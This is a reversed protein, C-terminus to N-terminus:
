ELTDINGLPGYLKGEISRKRRKKGLSQDKRFARVEIYFRGTRRPNNTKLRGVFNFCVENFNDSVRTYSRDKRQKGCFTKVRSNPLITQNVDDFVNTCSGEYFAIHDHQTPQCTERREQYLEAKLIKYVIVHDPLTEFTMRCNHESHSYFSGYGPSKIVMREGPSIFQSTDGCSGYREVKSLKATFSGEYKQRDHPNGGSDVTRFSDTILQVTLLGYAHVVIPAKKVNAVAPCSVSFENQFDEITFQEEGAELDELKFPDATIILNDGYAQMQQRKNVADRLYSFGNCDIKARTLEFRIKYNPDTNYFMFTCNQNIPYTQDLKTWKSWWYIKDPHPSIIIEDQDAFSPLAINIAHPYSGNKIQDQLENFTVIPTQIDCQANNQENDAIVQDAQGQTLAPADNPFVNKVDNQWKEELSEEWRNCRLNGNADKFNFKDDLAWSSYRRERNVTYKQIEENVWPSLRPINTYVGPQGAEACGLGWSVLGYLVWQNSYNGTEPDQVRCVLPGGSDGACADRGGHEWGACLM